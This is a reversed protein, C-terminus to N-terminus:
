IEGQLRELLEVQKLKKNKLLYNVNKMCMQGTFKINGRMMTCARQYTMEEELEVDVFRARGTGTMAFATKPCLLILTDEKTRKQLKQLFDYTFLSVMQEAMKPGIISVAGAPDAYSIYRVGYEEAQEVYRLLETEIKKLIKQVLEPEKRMGRFVYKLDILTGLITFPGSVELAVVEGEEALTKCAMLVERIRGKTFDIEPLMLVEELSQCVYEKARPGAHEDGLNISAGMAEAEVTHDFPMECILSGDQEKLAKSLRALSTHELYAKPFQFPMDKTIKDRIGASNDYTCKFDQIENM